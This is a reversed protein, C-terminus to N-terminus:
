HFTKTMIHDNKLSEEFIFDHQDEIAILDKTYDHMIIFFAAISDNFLRSVRSHVLNDKGFVNRAFSPFPDNVTSAQPSTLM